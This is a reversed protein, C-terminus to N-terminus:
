PNLSIVYGGDGVIWAKTSSFVAIRNLAPIEAGYGSAGRVGQRVWTAGGDTTRFILGRYSPVGQVFGTLEAGVIFGIQDNDPAFQVDNYILAQPDTSDRSVIGLNIRQIPLNGGVLRAVFGNGGTIFVDQNQRRAVGKYTLTVSTDAQAGAVESWSAGGNLSKYLRGPYVVGATIFRSGTTVAVVTTTDSKAFDIDSV